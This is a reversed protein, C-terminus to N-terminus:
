LICESVSLFGLGGEKKGTKAGKLPNDFFIVMGEERKGKPSRLWVACVYKALIYM